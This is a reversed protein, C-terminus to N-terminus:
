PSSEKMDNGTVSAPSPHAAHRSAVAVTNAPLDESRELAGAARPAQGAAARAVTLPHYEGSGFHVTRRDNLAGRLPM